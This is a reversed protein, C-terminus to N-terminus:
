QHRLPTTATSMVSSANRLPCPYGDGLSHIQAQREILLKNALLHKLEQSSSEILSETAPRRIKMRVLAVFETWNAGDGNM